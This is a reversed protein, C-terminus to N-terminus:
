RGCAKEIEELVPIYESSDWIVQGRNAVYVDHVFAFKDATSLSGAVLYREGWKFTIMNCMRVPRIFINVETQPILVGKIVVRVTANWGLRCDKSAIESDFTVLAM